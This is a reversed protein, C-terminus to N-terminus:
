NPISSQLKCMSQTFPTLAGNCGQGAEGRATGALILLVAVMTAGDLCALERVLGPYRVQRQPALKQAPRGPKRAPKGSKRAPRGAEVFRLEAM